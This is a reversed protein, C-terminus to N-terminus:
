LGVVYSSCYNMLGHIEPIARLLPHPELAMGFPTAVPVAVRFHLSNVQGLGFAGASKWCCVGGITRDTYHHWVIVALRM